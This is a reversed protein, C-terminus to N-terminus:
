QDGTCTCTIGDMIIIWGSQLLSPHALGHKITPETIAKMELPKYSFGREWVEKQQPQHGTHTPSNWLMTSHTQKSHVLNYMTAANLDMHGITLYLAAADASYMMVDEGAGGRVADGGLRGQDCEPSWQTGNVSVLPVAPEV